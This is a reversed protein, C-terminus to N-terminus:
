VKPAVHFSVFSDDGLNYILQIPIDNSIGIKINESLGTSSCMKYLHNLSFSTNINEGSAIAYVNLDDIPINIKLQSIDGTTIVDVSEESCIINFEPGITNLESLLNNFHEANIEIEVDYDIIPIELNEDNVEVLNLMFHHDYIGKVKTENNNLFNVFLKDGTADNNNNDDSYKIELINHKISYRMLSAFHSANVSLDYTVNSEFSSFWSSRIDIDAVCIHSSDMAQIYFKDSSITMNITTNWNKLLQFISSFRELKTKDSITLKM